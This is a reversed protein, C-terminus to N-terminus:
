MCVRGKVKSRVHLSVRQGKGQVMLGAEATSPGGVRAVKTGVVQVRGCLSIAATYLTQTHSWEWVEQCVCLPVAWEGDSTASASTRM